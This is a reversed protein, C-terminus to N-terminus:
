PHHSFIAVASQATSTHTSSDLLFLALGGMVLLVAGVGLRLSQWPADDSTEDNM